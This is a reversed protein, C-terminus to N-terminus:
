HGVLPHATPSCMYTNKYRVHSMVDWNNALKWELAWASPKFKKLLASSLTNFSLSTYVNKSIKKTKTKFFFPPCFHLIRSDVAFFIALLGCFIFCRFVSYSYPFRIIFFLFTLFSSLNLTSLNWTRFNVNTSTGYILLFKTILSRWVKRHKTARLIHQIEAIEILGQEAM